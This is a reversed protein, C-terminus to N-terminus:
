ARSEPPTVRIVDAARGPRAAARGLLPVHARASPSPGHEATGIGERLVVGAGHQHEARLRQPRVVLVVLVEEPQHALLDPWRSAIVESRARSCARSSASAASSAALFAKRDLTLWSNRVGSVSSSPGSSSTSPLRERPSPPVSISSICPLAWRSSRITLPSSSTARISASPRVGGELGGVQGLQGAVQELRELRRGRADAIVRSCRSSGSSPTTSTSGSRHSFITSLRTALAMFNVGSPVM